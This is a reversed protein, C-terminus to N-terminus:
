MDELSDLVFQRIFGIQLQVEDESMNEEEAIYEVLTIGSVYGRESQLWLMAVRHVEPHDAELLNLVKELFDDSEEPLIVYSYDIGFDKETSWVGLLENPAAGLRIPTGHGLFDDKTILAGQKKPDKRKKYMSANIYDMLEENNPERGVEDFFDHRGVQITAQRRSSSVAGRMGAYNHYAVENPVLSRVKQYLHAEWSESDRSFKGPEEEEEALLKLLIANADQFLDESISQARVGRHRLHVTVIQRLRNANAALFDHTAANRDPQALVWALADASTLIKEKDTM